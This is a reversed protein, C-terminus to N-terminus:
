SCHIKVEDAVTKISIVFVPGSEDRIRSCNVGNTGMSYQKFQYKMVSFSCHRYSIIALETYIFLVEYCTYSNTTFEKRKCNVQKKKDSRVSNWQQATNRCGWSTESYYIFVHIILLVTVSRDEAFLMLRFLITTQKFFNAYSVPPLFLCLFVRPQSFHYM